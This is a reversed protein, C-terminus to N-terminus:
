RDSRATSPPFRSELYDHLNKKVEPDFFSIPMQHAFIKGAETLHYQDKKRELLGDQLFKQFEKKFSASMLDLEKQRLRFSGSRVAFLLSKIQMQKPTLKFARSVPLTSKSGSWRNHEMFAKLPSVNQLLWRGPSSYSSNGYGFISFSPAFAEEPEAREKQFWYIPKEHLQLRDCLYERAFCLNRTQWYSDAPYCPLRTRPFPHLMYLTASQIAGSEFLPALLEIERKWNGLERHHPFGNILDLNISKFGHRAVAEIVRLIDRRSYGRGVSHLIRDDFSQVGISIRPIAIAKLMELLDDVDDEPNLEYTSQPSLVSLDVRGLLHELLSGLLRPPLM